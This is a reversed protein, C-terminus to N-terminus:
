EGFTFSWQICSLKSSEGIVWVPIDPDINQHITKAFKTYFGPLGPNGLRKHNKLMFNIFKIQGIKKGTICIVVEKRVFSEEIWPGWSIIHTPVSNINIFAEQM